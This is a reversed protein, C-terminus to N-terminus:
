KWPRVKEISMAGCFEAAIGEGTPLLDSSPNYFGFKLTSSYDHKKWNSEM